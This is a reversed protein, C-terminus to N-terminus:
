QSERGSGCCSRFRGHRKIAHEVQHRLFLGRGTETPRSVIVILILPTQTRDVLVPESRLGDDRQQGLAQGVRVEALQLIRALQVDAKRDLADAAEAQACEQLSARDRGHDAEYRV